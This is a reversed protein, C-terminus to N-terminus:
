SIELLYYDDNNVAEVTIEPNYVTFAIKWM